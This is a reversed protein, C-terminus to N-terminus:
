KYLLLSELLVSIENNSLFLKPCMEARDHACIIAHMLLLCVLAVYSIVTILTSLSFALPYLFTINCLTLARGARRQM